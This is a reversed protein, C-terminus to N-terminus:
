RAGRGDSQEPTAHHGTEAGRDVGAVDPAAHGHGHDATTTDADGRDRARCQGAGARDDGDVDVLLLELRGLAHPGGVQDVGGLDVRHLLDLLDTAVVTGLSGVDDDVGDTT